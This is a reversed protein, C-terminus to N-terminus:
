FLAIGRLRSHLKPPDFTSTGPPNSGRLRNQLGTGLWEALSGQLPQNSHLTVCIRAYRCIASPRERGKGREKDKPESM